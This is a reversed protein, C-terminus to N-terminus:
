RVRMRYHAKQSLLMNVRNQDFMYGPEYAERLQRAFDRKINESMSSDTYCIAGDYEFTFLKNNGYTSIYGKFILTYPHDPKIRVSELNVVYYESSM